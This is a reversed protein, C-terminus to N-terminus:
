SSASEPRRSPTSTPAAVGAARGKVAWAVAAYSRPGDPEGNVYAARMASELRGRAAADLSNVYEAAPGEKGLYPAWFDAFSSFEMRIQLSTDEVDVFGARRWAAALEGPRTMPRTLSRARM